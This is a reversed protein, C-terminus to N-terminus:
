IFKSHNLDNANIAFAAVTLSGFGVRPLWKPERKRLAASRSLRVLVQRFLLRRRGANSRFVNLLASVSFNSAFHYDRTRSKYIVITRCATRRSHTHASPTVPVRALRPLIQQTSRMGAATACVLVRRSRPFAFSFHDFSRAGAACSKATRKCLEVRAKCHFLKSLVLSQTGRMHAAAARQEHWNCLKRRSKKTIANARKSEAAPHTASTGRASQAARDGPQCASRTRALPLSVSLASSLILRM